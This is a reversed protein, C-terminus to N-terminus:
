HESPEWRFRRVALILGFLGWAAVISLDDVVNWVHAHHVIVDRVLRIFHSLPLVDALWRVVQPFSKTSFFAGALFAAPLYIANIVASSGEATRIFTSTAVGLATFSAAGILLVVLLSLWRTPVPVDWLARALVILIVAQLLYVFVFSGFLGALYTAGPLPTARIRKLTGAERRLVLLIGLGAFTTAAAGYGLLGSLLYTYGRVGDVTDNGYASGLLLLFIIPFLFTFFALERSRWFLLQEVRFQHRLLRM